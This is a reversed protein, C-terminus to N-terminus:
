KCIGTHFAFEIFLIACTFGTGFLFGNLVQVLADM